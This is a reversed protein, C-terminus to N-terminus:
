TKQQLMGPKACTVTYLHTWFRFAEMNRGRFKASSTSKLILIMSALSHASEAMNIVTSQLGIGHHFLAAWNRAEQFFVLVFRQHVTMDKGTNADASLEPM